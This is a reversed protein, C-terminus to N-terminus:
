LQRDMIVPGNVAGEGWGASVEGGLHGTGPGWVAEEVAPLCVM